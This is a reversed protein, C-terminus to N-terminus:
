IKRAKGNSILLKLKELKSLSEETVIIIKGKIIYDQNDQIMASSIITLTM